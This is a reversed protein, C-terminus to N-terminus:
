NLIIKKKFKEKVYDMVSLYLKNMTPTNGQDINLEIIIQLYIKGSGDKEFLQFM